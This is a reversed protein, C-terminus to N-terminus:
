LLDENSGVDWAKEAELSKRPSQLRELDQEHKTEFVKQVDEAATAAKQLLEFVESLAEGVEAELPFSEDSKEALIKFTNAWSQIGAPMGQITQYVHIMGGPEYAAAAAEMDAASEDFHFRLEATMFPEGLTAPHTNQRPGRPVGDAITPDTELSAPDTTHAHTNKADAVRALHNHKANATLRRYMRRGPHMLWSWGLKRGLPTTVTGLLAAPASLIAAGAAKTAYRAKSSAVKRTLNARAAANRRAQRIRQTRTLTRQDKHDRAKTRATDAKTPATKPLTTHAGGKNHKAAATTNKRAAKDQKKLNRLAKKEGRRGDKLARRQKTNQERQEKRTKGEAKKANRLAKIQGVRSKPTTFTGKGAPSKAPTKGTPPKHLSTPKPTNPAKTLSPSATKKGAAAAGKGGPTKGAFTGPTRGTTGRGGLPRTGSANRTGGSRNSSTRTSGAAPTRTPTNQRTPAKKQQAPKVPTRRATKQAKRRTSAAAAAATVIGAAAVGAAALPGGVVAAASLGAAATNSTIVLLPIAPLGGDTHQVAAPAPKPTPAPEASQPADFAQPDPTPDTDTPQLTFSTDISM